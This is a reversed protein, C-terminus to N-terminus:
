FFIFFLFLHILTINSKLSNLEQEKIHSEKIAIEALKRETIDLFSLLISNVKKEQDFIPTYKGELWQLDGKNTIREIEKKVINGKLAENFEHAFSNKFNLPM